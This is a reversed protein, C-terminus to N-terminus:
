AGVPVGIAKLCTYSLAGGILVQDFHSLLNVIVGLKDSIKSGGLIAVAPRKPNKLLGDLVSIEKEVLFGIARNGKPFKNPVAVMSADKRHCTGFADNVYFDGLERLKSAFTEDGKKEGDNFRLNELVLIEGPKLREAMATAKSGVVEDCKEVHVDPLLKRLRDAVRDMKLNQDRKSDMVPRGLHSMLIVSANLKLISRLTPLEKRIRMDDAISGDANLPVNFDVRVLVRKGDINLDRITRKSM